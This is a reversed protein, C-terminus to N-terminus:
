PCCDSFKEQARRVASVLDQSGTAVAAQMSAIVCLGNSSRLLDRALSLPLGKEHRKIPHLGAHVFSNLAAWSQTRFNAFSVVVAAPAKGELATLMAAAQPLAKDIGADETSLDTTFVRTSDEDACYCLWVSRLTAEYQSRLVVAASPGLGEPLLARVAAGHGVALSAAIQCVDYRAQLEYPPLSFGVELEIALAHSRALLDSFEDLSYSM